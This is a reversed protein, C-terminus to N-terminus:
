SATPSQPKPPPLLTELELAAAMARYGADNPHLHDGSDYAPNLRSPRAPDRLVRDMDVVADFGASERIWRNVAQRLREKEPSHHGELPTGELAREFPPLTAAILRVNHARALEALARYGQTFDDLRMAAEHPAFPGGPWGIDNTGLLVIVTRVGPRSFVDRGIRALASRGMGDRLLRAGSIGANLVAVGRPALREALADPWRTDADPTAGNGDTISDGLAVVTVPPQAGDVMVGALFARTSLSTTDRALSRAATQDGSALYATQRADFHFGAPATARPLYISVAVRALAPLALDVPDSVVRAGPPVHVEAQGGFRLVRDSGAVVSSGEAHRAIRAGGIVLPAQGEENSLVVRLRAGGVSLRAVQRLTQREFQTPTGLPLVFDSSWLPQPSAMWSDRWFTPSAQAVAPAAAAWASLAVVGALLQRRVRPHPFPNM